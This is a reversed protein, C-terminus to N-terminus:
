KAFDGGSRGQNATAGDDTFTWVDWYWDPDTIVLGPLANVKLTAESVILAQGLQTVLDAATGDSHATLNAIDFELTGTQALFDDKGTVAGTADTGVRTSNVRLVGGPSYLTSGLRFGYNANETLMGFKAVTNLIALTGGSGHFNGNREKAGKNIIQAELLGGELYYHGSGAANQVLRLQGNENPTTLGGTTSQRVYVTGASQNMTGTCAGNALSLLESSGSKQTILIVDDDVNLTTTIGAAGKFKLMGCQFNGTVNVNATLNINMEETLAPPWPASPNWNGSNNFDSDVTGTWVTVASAVGGLALLLSCVIAIRKEM